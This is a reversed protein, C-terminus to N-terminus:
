RGDGSAGLAERALGPRRVFEWDDMTMDRQTPYYTDLARTMPTGYRIRVRTGDYWVYRWCPPWGTRRVWNGDRQSFKMADGYLM